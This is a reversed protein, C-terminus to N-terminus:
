WDSYNTGDLAVNKSASHVDIIGPTVARGAADVVRSVARLPVPLDFAEKGIWLIRGGGLLLHCIGLPQPAYLNANRILILTM